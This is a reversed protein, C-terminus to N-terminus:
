VFTAESIDGGRYRGHFTGDNEVEAPKPRSQPVYVFSVACHLNGRSPMNVRKV